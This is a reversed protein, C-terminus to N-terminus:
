LAACGARLSRQVRPKGVLERSSNQGDWDFAPSLSSDYRYIAPPKEKPFQPQTGIEPRMPNTGEYHRYSEAVRGPNGGGGARRKPPATVRAQRWM